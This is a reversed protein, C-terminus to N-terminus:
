RSNSSNQEIIARRMARRKRIEEAVRRMRERVEEDTAPRVTQNAAKPGRDSQQPAAPNVAEVRPQAMAVIEAHKLTLRKSFSGSQLLVSEGNEDFDKALLGDEGAENLTLWYSQKKSNDYVSVKVDGGISLVGKFEFNDLPSAVQPPTAPTQAVAPPDFPSVVGEQAFAVAGLAIGLAAALLARGKGGRTM